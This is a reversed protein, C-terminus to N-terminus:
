ALPVKTGRCHRRASGARDLSEGQVGVPLKGPRRPELTHGAVGDRRRHHGSACPVMGRNRGVLGGVGHRRLIRRLISGGAIEGARRVTAGDVESRHARRREQGPARLDHRLGADLGCRRYIVARGAALATARGGGWAMLVGWNFALGLFLQPWWTVRKMLPYLAVLFLSACGLEIAQQDLQSLVLLGLGLQVALFALAGPVGIRGSPLPRGRTREVEADIRRDILDNLTCGAGRMVVAGAAFLAYLRPGAGGGLALGWFCPFLLLWIGIPRDLRALEVCAVLWAPLRAKLGGQPIDTFPAM